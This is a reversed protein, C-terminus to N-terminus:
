YMFSRITFISLPIGIEVSAQQRLTTFVHSFEAITQIARELTTFENKQKMVSFM